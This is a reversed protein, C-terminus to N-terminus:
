ALNGGVPTLLGGRVGIMKYGDKLEEFCVNCNKRQQYSTDKKQQNSITRMVQVIDDPRVLIRGDSLHVVRDMNKRLLRAQKKEPYAFFRDIDGREKDTMGMEDAQIFKYSQM